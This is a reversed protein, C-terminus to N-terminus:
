ARRRYVTVWVAGSLIVGIGLAALLLYTLTEGSGGAFQLTVQLSQGAGSTGDTTLATTEAGGLYTGTVTFDGPPVYFVTEGTVSTEVAVTGNADEITVVAGSVSAGDSVTKVVVQNAPVQVQTVSYPQAVEVEQPATQPTAVSVQLPYQTGLMYLTGNGVSYASAGLVQVQSDTLPESWQAADIEVAAPQVTVPVVSFLGVGLQQYLVYVYRPWLSPGTQLSANVTATTSLPNAPSSCGQLWVWQGTGTILVSTDYVSVGQGGEFNATLTFQGTRMPLEDLLATSFAKTLSGSAQVPETRAVEMSRSVVTLTDNLQYAYDQSLGLWFTFPSAGGQPVASVTTGNLSLLLTGGGLAAPIPAYVTSTSLSGTSCASVDYASPSDLTYNLALDGDQNVGYGSLVTPAGGGVLYFQVRVGSTSNSAALAWLGTPDTNSFTFLTETTNGPVDTFFSVVTGPQPQTLTVNVLGTEYTKFWLQDGVTYVPIGSSVPAVTGQSFGLGIALPTGVIIGHGLVPQILMSAALLAVVILKRADV